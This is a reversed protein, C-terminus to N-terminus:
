GNMSGRLDIFFIGGIPFDMWPILKETKKKEAQQKLEFHNM